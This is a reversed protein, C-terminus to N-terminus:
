KQGLIQSGRLDVSVFILKFDFSFYLTLARITFLEKTRVAYLLKILSKSHFITNLIIIWEYIKNNVSQYWSWVFNQQSEFYTVCGYCYSNLILKRLNTCLGFLYHSILNVLFINYYYFNNSFSADQIHKQTFRFKGVSLLFCVFLHPFSFYYICRYLIYM